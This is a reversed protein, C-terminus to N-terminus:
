AGHKSAIQKRVNELNMEAMRRMRCRGEFNSLLYRISPKTRGLREAIEGIYFGREFLLCVLISRADVVEERRDDSIIDEPPIETVGSVVNLIDAFIETKCM